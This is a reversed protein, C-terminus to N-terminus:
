AKCIVRRERWEAYRIDPGGEAPYRVCTVVDVDLCKDKNANAGCKYSSGIDGNCGDEPVVERCDTHPAQNTNKGDAYNTWVRYCDDGSGSQTKCAWNNDNNCTSDTDSKISTSIQKCSDEGSSCGFEHLKRTRWLTDSDKCKWNSWSDYYNNDTCEEVKTQKINCSDYNWVDNNYCQIDENVSYFIDKSNIAEQLSKIEGEIDVEIETAYHGPDFDTSYSTIPNGIDGCIKQTSIAEKLTIEQLVGEVNVSVLIESFNGSKMGGRRRIGIWGL